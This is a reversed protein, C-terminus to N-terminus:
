DREWASPPHRCLRPGGAFSVGVLIDPKGDADADLGTPRWIDRPLWDCFEGQLIPPGSVPTAEYCLLLRRVHALTAPVPWKNGPDVVKPDPDNLWYTPALRIVSPATPGVPITAIANGEHRCQNRLLVGGGALNGSYEAFFYHGIAESPVAGHMEAQAALSFHSLLLMLVSAFGALHWQRSCVPAGIKM